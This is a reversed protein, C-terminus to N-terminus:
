YFLSTEVGQSGHYWWLSEYYCHSSSAILGNHSSPSRHCNSYIWAHHPWICSFHSELEIIFICFEGEQAELKWENRCCWNRSSNSFPIFNKGDEREKKLIILLRQSRSLQLSDAYKIHLPIDGDNQFPPKMLESIKIHQTQHWHLSPSDVQCTPFLRPSSLLSSSRHKKLWILGQIIILAGGNTCVM